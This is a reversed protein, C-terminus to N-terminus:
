VGVLLEVMVQVVIVGVEVGVLVIVEPTNVDVRVTVRVIVGVWVHVEPTNVEVGVKLGVFVKV